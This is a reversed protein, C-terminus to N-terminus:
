RGIVDIVKDLIQQLSLDSKIVYSRAGLRLARSKDQEDSLNSLVIVPISSLSSDSALMKLVEFGDMKPMLLDLLVLDPMAARIKELAQIGDHAICVAFGAERLVDEYASAIFLEDDAILISKM